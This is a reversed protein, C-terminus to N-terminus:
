RLNGVGAHLYIGGHDVERAITSGVVNVIGLTKLRRRKAERLSALTDATEGSQSMFIALTTNPDYSGYRYRFESAYEVSVPIGLMEELEYKAYYGAFYATGCGVILIHRLTLIDNLSLNPGGLVISGDSGVRGRMVNKLAEPQEFIEKELYSNFGNLSVSLDLKDLQEVQIDQHKLKMDYLELSSSTIDAIQDDELYIVKDTHDIIASVDSALYNQDVGVGIVIPSGRRAAFIHGQVKPSIIAVGFTGKAQSLSLKVAELLNSAKSFNFDILAALVESDTQSKLKSVDIFQKLEEYNEIIGNHVLTIDGFTHPHANNLSPKGHTAWRTHGIGLTPGSPLNEIDLNETGGVTKITHITRDMTAIGASDYGRYELRKLGPYIINAAPRRGVYGVIGCM